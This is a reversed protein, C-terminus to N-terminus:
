GATRVSKEAAPQGKRRQRCLDLFRQVAVVTQRRHKWDILCPFCLPLQAVNEASFAQRMCLFFWGPGFPRPTHCSVHPKIRDGIFPQRPEAKRKRDGKVTFDGAKTCNLVHVHQVRARYKLLTTGDRVASEQRAPQNGTGFGPSFARDHVPATLFATMLGFQRYTYRIRGELSWSDM